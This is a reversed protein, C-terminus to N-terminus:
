LNIKIGSSLQLYTHTLAIREATQSFTYYDRKVTNEVSYSLTNTFSYKENLKYDFGLGANVAYGQWFNNRFTYKDSGGYRTSLLFKPIYAAKAFFTTRNTNLLNIGLGLPFQLTRFSVTQPVILEKTYLGSPSPFMREQSIFVSANLKRSIFGAGTEVFLKKSINRQVMAAAGANFTTKMYGKGWAGSYDHKHITLEPQLQLSAQWNKAEQGLAATSILFLFIILAKRM